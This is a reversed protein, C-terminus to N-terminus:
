HTVDQLLVTFRITLLTCRSILSMEIIFKRLVVSGAPLKKKIKCSPFTVPKGCQKRAAEKALYNAQCNIENFLFRM